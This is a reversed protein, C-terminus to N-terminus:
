FSAFFLSFSLGRNLAKEFLNCCAVVLPLLVLGDFVRLLYSM